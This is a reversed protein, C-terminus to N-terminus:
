EIGLGLGYALGLRMVRWSVEMIMYGMDYDERSVCEELLALYLTSSYAWGRELVLEKAAMLFRVLLSLSRPPPARLPESGRAGVRRGVDLVCGPAYVWSLVLCGVGQWGWDVGYSVGVM